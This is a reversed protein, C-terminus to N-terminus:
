VDLHMNSSGVYRVWTDCRWRLLPFGHTTIFTPGKLLMIILLSLSKIVKSRYSDSAIIIGILYSSDSYHLFSISKSPGLAIVIPLSLKEGWHQIAVCGSFQRTMDIGGRNPGINNRQKMFSRYSTLFGKVTIDASSVKQRFELLIVAM